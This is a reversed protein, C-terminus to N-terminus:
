APLRMNMKKSLTRLNEMLTKVLLTIVFRYLHNIMGQLGMARGDDPSYIRTIGYDHLEEIEHLFFQEVAVVLLKIHGAGRENLLDYMYKFFENHGGQYSTM